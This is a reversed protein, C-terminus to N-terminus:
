DEFVIVFINNNYCNKTTNILLNNDVPKKNTKVVKSVKGIYEIDINKIVKDDKEKEEKTDKEIIDNEKDSIIVLHNINCCIGKM